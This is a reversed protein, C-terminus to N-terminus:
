CRTSAALSDGKLCCLREKLCGPTVPTPQLQQALWYHAAKGRPKLKATEGSTHVAGKYLPLGREHMHPIM